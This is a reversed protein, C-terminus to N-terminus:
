WVLFIQHCTYQNWRKFTVIRRKEMKVCNISDKYFQTRWKQRWPIHLWLIRGLRRRWCNRRWTWKNWSIQNATTKQSEKTAKKFDAWNIILRWIKTWSKALKWPYTMERRKIWIRNNLFTWKSLLIDIKCKWTYKCKRNWIKCFFAL